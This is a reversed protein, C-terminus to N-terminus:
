HLSTMLLRGTLGCTVRCQTGFNCSRECARESSTVGCSHLLECQMLPKRPTNYSGCSLLPTWLLRSGAALSWARGSLRSFLFRKLTRFPM